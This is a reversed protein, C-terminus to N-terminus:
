MDVEGTFLEDCYWWSTEIMDMAEDARVLFKEINNAGIYDLANMTAPLPINETLRVLGDLAQVAALYSAARNARPIANESWSSLTYEKPNYGAAVYRARVATVANQVRNMDTYRYLGKANKAAVDAATRDYVMNNLM